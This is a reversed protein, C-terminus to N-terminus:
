RQTHLEFSKEVDDFFSKLKMELLKKVWTDEAFSVGISFYEDNSEIERCHKLQVLPIEIREQDLFLEVQQRLESLHEWYPKEILPAMFSAGRASLDQLPYNLLVEQSQQQVAPLTKVFDIFHHWLKTREGMQHSGMFSPPSLLKIRFYCVVGKPVIFRLSRRRELQYIQPGLSLLFQHGKSEVLAKGFFSLEGTQLHFFLSSHRWRQPFDPSHHLIKVPLHSQAPTSSVDIQYTALRYKQEQGKEWLTLPLGSSLLQHIRESAQAPAMLLYQHQQVV